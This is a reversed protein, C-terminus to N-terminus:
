FNSSVFFTFLRAPGTAESDFPQPSRPYQLPEFTPNVTNTGSTPGYGGLGNNRYRSNGSPFVPTYNGLLNVVRVGVQFHNPGTGVDHAISANVFLRQPGILTGPDSKDATGRSGTINPNLIDCTTASALALCAASANGRNIPDTFYYASTNANLGLSTAALDTNLVQVPVLNTPTGSCGAVAGCPAFVFTKTGVGYHYGSEYPFETTIWLGKRDHYTIGATATIPALYSVHYFHNAALAATNPAPFFDSNYNALTNDYTMNFYGSFGFTASKSVALEVGTNENIGANQERPAGFVPTGDPLTTLLPTNAVVYNFGRRYYGTIRTELGGTWDHTWGLDYNVATQPKVPTYQAFDNTNLDEITQQGLNSVANCPVNANAPDLGNVCTPSYGPLPVFCGSAITCNFAAQPVQWTDEVNALPTYEINSGFSANFVNRANVNPTYTIAIRPSVQSPKTVDTGIAPSAVDQFTGDALVVYSTSQAAANAPIRLNEQDYRIGADVNFHDNPTWTDKLWIYSRNVPDNVHSISSPFTALPLFFSTCNYNVVTLTICGPTNLPGLYGYELPEVLTAITTGGFQSNTSSYITAAGVAFLNANNLQNYYDGEIGLSNVEVQQSFDGFAGGDWPLEFHDYINTRFLTFDAYSSSSFQRKYNLKEIFHTNNEADPYNIAQNANVQGPFLATDLAPGPGVTAWVLQNSSGYPLCTPSGGTFPGGGLTGCIASQTSGYQLQNNNEDFLNAGTEGVYQLENRNDQGWRYFLNVDLENGSADGVAGVTAPLFTHQDGYVRYQRLGNYAFFWSFRNDPTANGYQVAFRHDFNPANMTITAQGAGPYSGRQLVINVVGSNTNGNSVDYGGTSLVLRSFGALSLSNIFQGTVPETADIGELQFGEDNEAGGRIIPYGGTDTTIGPLSNLVATESINQPTGTINQAQTPTVTYKDATESPQILSTAGRVTVTTLTKLATQMTVNLLFSSDQTVTVGAVPNTVYGEKAFTVVYTDPPLGTLAYYGGSNSIAKFTGSPAVAAVNVDALPLTQITKSTVTSTSTTSVRGIINGLAGALTGTAQGVLAISALAAVSLAWKLSKPMRNGEQVWPWLLTGPRAARTERREL